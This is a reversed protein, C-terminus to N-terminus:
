DEMRMQRAMEKGFPSITFIVVLSVIGVKLLTELSSVGFSFYSIPLVICTTFLVGMLLDMGIGFVLSIFNKM